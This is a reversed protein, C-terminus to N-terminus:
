KGGERKKMIKEDYYAAREYALEFMNRFAQSVDESEIVVGFDEKLSMIAVKNGYINIEPKIQLSEPVIRTKRLLKKDRKKSQFSRECAAFISRVSINKDTRRKFYGDLYGPYFSEAEEVSGYALIEKDPDQLTDEYASMVGEVGDLYRVAVKKDPDKYLTELDPLIDEAMKLKKQADYLRNRLFLVLKDPREAAFIIKSEGEFSTVLGDALLGNLLHYANTRSVKARRAIKTVSSPGLEVLALYIRAEKEALGFEILKSLM